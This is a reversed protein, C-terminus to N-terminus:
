LDLISTSIRIAEDKTVRRNERRKQAQNKQQTKEKKAKNEPSDDINIIEDRLTPNAILKRTLIIKNKPGTHPTQIYPNPIYIPMKGGHM